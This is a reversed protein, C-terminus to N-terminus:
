KLLHALYWVHIYLNFSSQASTQQIVPDTGGDSTPPTLWRPNTVIYFLKIQPLLYQWNILVILSAIMTKERTYREGLKLFFETQRSRLQSELSDVCGQLPWRFINTRLYFYLKFFFYLIPCQWQHLVWPVNWTCAHIRHHAGHYIDPHHKTSYDAWNKLGADWYYRFQNQSGWCRLWWLGMDMMKSWKPVITKNTVGLATSNDTQILSKPQPWGMDILTQQHPATKRTAILLAALEAEAVTVMVFKIITAITQVASNFRPSPNDELLFIHAGARCCSWTKNLYGADAHTCLVMDSARHVIGNNPYTAVYNLLIDLLQEMHVTAKAQWTSIANLVVLLKNNVAQAYYLLSGINKSRVQHMRTVSTGIHRWRTHVLKKPWICDTNRHIAFTSAEQAYGLEPQSTPWQCSIEHQHTSAQQPFGM